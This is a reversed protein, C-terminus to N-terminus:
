KRRRSMFWVLGLVGALVIGSSAAIKEQRALAGEVAEPYRNLHDVRYDNATATYQESLEQEWTM